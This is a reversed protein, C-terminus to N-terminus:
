SVSVPELQPSSDPAPGSPGYPVDEDSPGRDRFRRSMKRLILITTIGLGIYLAGVVIAMIWVGTNATAGDEVRMLNYVIWPQRGVESVTWGAEMSIVSAVGAVSAIRL